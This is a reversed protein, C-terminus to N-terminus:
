FWNKQELQLLYNDCTIKIKERKKRVSMKKNVM